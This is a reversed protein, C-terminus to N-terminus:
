RKFDSYKKLVNLEGILRIESTLEELIKLGDLVHEKKIENNKLKHKLTIKENNVFSLFSVSIGMDLDIFFQVYDSISRIGM